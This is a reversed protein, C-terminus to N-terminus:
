TILYTCANPKYSVVRVYRTYLYKNFSPRLYKVEGPIVLSIAMWDATHKNLKIHYFVNFNNINIASVKQISFQEVMSMASCLVTLKPLENLIRQFEYLMSVCYYTLSETVVFVLKLIAFYITGQSSGLIMWSSIYEVGLM